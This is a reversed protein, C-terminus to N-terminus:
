LRVSLGVGTFWNPSPDQLGVGIRWDLQLNNSLLWGIGTDLYNSSGGGQNEPFLGYWEIYTTVVQTLVYILELSALGQNFREDDEFGRVWGVNGGVTLRERLDWAAALATGPVVESAGIGSAGTPLDAGLVLSVRPVAWSSGEPRRYLRAKFGIMFDQLGDVDASPSRLLVFSNLGLRGELWPLIGLRVLLEGFDQEEEEGSRSFTYGMEFQFRGPAVTSTGASFDPRDTILPESEQALASAPCAVAVVAVLAARHLAVRLHM